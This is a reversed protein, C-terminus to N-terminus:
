LVTVAVPSSVSAANSFALQVDGATGNLTLSAISFTGQQPTGLLQLIPILAFYGIVGGIQAAGLFAQAAAQILPITALTWGSLPNISVAVSVATEIATQLSLLRTSGNADTVVQSVNNSAGGANWTPVGPTYKLFIAQFIASLSGGEVVFDLNGAPLVVGGPLAMGSSTNNEYGRVRTVGPTNAIAAVIGEFITLSPLAVSQAQRLRLAPDTEVPAGPVAVSNTIGTWGFTPTSITLGNAVLTVAGETQCTVTVTTTGSTGITVPTPLLWVNGGADTAAGNTIPANPTGSLVAPASSLSPILRKLGNIQVNNSLGVGQATAPSFSNYVAVCASNSDSIARAFVALLQGDQTDPTILADAGFIALYQAQFYAYIQPFTPATIGTASIVPATPSAM